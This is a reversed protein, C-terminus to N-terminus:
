YPYAKLQRTKRRRDVEARLHHLLSETGWVIGENLKGRPVVADPVAQMTCTALTWHKGWPVLELRGWYKSMSGRHREWSLHYGGGPLKRWDYKVAVWANAVPWPLELVVMAWIEYPGRQRLRQCSKVKPMIRGYSGFDMFTDMVETPRAAILLKGTPIWHQGSRDVKTTIKWNALTLREFYSLGAPAPQAHAVPSQLGAPAALVLLVTSLLLARVM